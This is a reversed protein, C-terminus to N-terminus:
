RPALPKRIDMAAALSSRMRTTTHENLEMGMTALDSYRSLERSRSPATGGATSPKRSRAVKARAWRMQTSDGPTTPKEPSPLYLALVDTKGKRYTSM